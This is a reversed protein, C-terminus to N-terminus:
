SDKKLELKEWTEKLEQIKDIYQDKKDRSIYIDFSPETVLDFTLLKYDAGITGDENISGTGRSAVGISQNDNLLNKVIQGNPTNLINIDGYISNDDVTINEITHSINTLSIDTVDGDQGFEGYLPNRVKMQEVMPTILYKPYIRGNRNEKDFEILKTRIKM